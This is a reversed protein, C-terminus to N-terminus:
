KYSKEKFLASALGIWYSAASKGVGLGVLGPVPLISASLANGTYIFVKPVDSSLAEFGAVAERAAAFATTNLVALDGELTELPLTFFNNLDEPPSAAAANYVVVNPPGGLKTKVTDFIHLVSSSDKLDARISLFGEPTSEGDSASRSVLAIRYGKESFGRALSQGINKGAGLVLLIKKAAM